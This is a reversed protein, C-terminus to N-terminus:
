RRPICMLRPTWRRPNCNPPNEGPPPNIELPYEGRVVGNRACTRQKSHSLCSCPARHAEVLWYGYITERQTSACWVRCWRCRRWRWCVRRIVDIEGDDLASLLPVLNRPQVALLRKCCQRLPSTLKVHSFQSSKIQQLIFVELGITVFKDFYIVDALCATSGFQTFIRGSPM